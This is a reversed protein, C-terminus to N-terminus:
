SVATAYNIPIEEKHFRTEYQTQIKYDDPLDSEHLDFSLETLNWSDKVFQELSWLFLTRADTKFHLKGTDKLIKRYQRLFNVYTLRRRHNKKKPYPDPFTLWLEDVSQALLVLSLDTLDMRLFQINEIGEELAQKASTYLRDSKIDVALYVNEPHKRALALSFQANGAAVELVVKEGLKFYAELLKRLEAPDSGRLFSHCNKYSEFHAFKYTKRKRSIILHRFQDEQSDPKM